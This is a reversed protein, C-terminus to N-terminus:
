SPENLVDMFEIAGAEMKYIVRDIQAVLLNYCVYAVIGVVLGGVVLGSM